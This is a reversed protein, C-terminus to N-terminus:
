SAANEQQPVFSVVIAVMLWWLTAVEPRFWITDVLGHTLMGAMTAVTAM